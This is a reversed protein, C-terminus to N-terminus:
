VTITSSVFISRAAQSYRALSGGTMDWSLRKAEFEEFPDLPIKRVVDFIIKETPKYCDCEGIAKFPM